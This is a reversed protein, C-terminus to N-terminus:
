LSDDSISWLRGDAAKKGRVIRIRCRASGATRSFFKGIRIPDLKGFAKILAHRLAAESEAQILLDRVNFVIGIGVITRIAPLVIDLKTADSGHLAPSPSPQAVRLHLLIQELLEIVRSDSNM